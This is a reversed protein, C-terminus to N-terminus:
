HMKYIYTSFIIILLSGFLLIIIKNTFM